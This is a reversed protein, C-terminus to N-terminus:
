AADRVERLAREILVPCIARRYEESGRPNDGFSLNEVVLIGAEKIAADNLGEQALLEEAQQARVARGPRSGVVVRFENDLQAVAVNLVAYDTATKRISGFAARRGDRPLLIHTLIDRVGKGQLYQGLSMRGTRHWDLEADLAMLATIPDSFPYRGAVSGGLTVCNRLQVGVINEVSRALVGDGLGGLLGSTEVQRLSAMAGIQVFDDKEHITDLGLGSLDIGMPIRRKGLRLYGCGGLITSGATEQLADHAEELSAAMLYRDIKLM